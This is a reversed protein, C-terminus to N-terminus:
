GRAGRDSTAGAPEYSPRAKDFGREGFYLAVEGDDPYDPNVGFRVLDLRELAGDADMQYWSFDFDRAMNWVKEIAKRDTEGKEAMYAFFEGFVEASRRDAM